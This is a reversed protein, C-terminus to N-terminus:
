RKDQDHLWIICFVFRDIIFNNKSDLKDISQIGGKLWSVRLSSLWDLHFWFKIYKNIMRMSIAFIMRM